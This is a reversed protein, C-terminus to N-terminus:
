NDEEAKDKGQQKRSFSEGIRKAAPEKVVEEREEQTVAEEEVIKKLLGKKKLLSPAREKEPSKQKKSGKEPCGDCM